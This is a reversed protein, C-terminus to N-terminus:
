VRVLRAAFFGDLGGSEAWHCPLTRLDGEPSLFEAQNWVEEPTVPLRRVPAEEQALLAAIREPGEEPQLSCTCYVVRGGPRIMTVAAELLRTQVQTLKGVEQPQKLWAVDPHRRIAGTSSCPADLLVADFLTDPRWIAVDAKITEVELNLRDMNRRLRDLRKGSRDLATVRAGAAALQATKGGPAACLDAVRLGQVDGLLGVPLAAAADQVWWAGEEFGPLDPVAGGRTRCRLAGTPLRDAELRAAWTEANTKVSIDLSPEALHAEAIRRCIDTGYAAQWSNWLWDPTNLCAADQAAVLNRGERGLRRLVANALKKFRSHGAEEMLRVTTDVAAHPPTDLFLLQTIGLRLVDKVRIDKRPLPKELCHAILADVQGLRRLAIMAINRAFARDRPELAVLGPAQDLAEGLPRKHRLVAELVQLALLRPTLSSGPM